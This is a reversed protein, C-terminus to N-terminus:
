KKTTWFSTFMMLLGGIFIAIALGGAIGSLLDTNEMIQFNHLNM